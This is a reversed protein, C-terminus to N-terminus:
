RARDPCATRKHGEMGCLGCKPLARTRQQIPPEIGNQQPLPPGQNAHELLELLELAEPATLGGEHAIQRRSITQKRKQKQNAARLDSVEKKLLAASQMTIQCAKLVQNIATNLPSPPSKSRQKLLAKISSAQKQLQIYNSPTKPEWESGRSSPPTPTRLQINLKSIVRDPDYPVLGTASFSNKITESKFTESRASPYADLFDFKDIHNVGARMKTEVLRGYGRKLVAFCGVDLPQLLHSSHPPMCIPIVNNQSCIEDFKPTLHSGHGDLVLLRYKGKTRSSTSPIFVKQLWNLGIEHSTWGNDSKQFLWDKPSSDFWGKIFSKAKFIICPPLAWGSASICEISTVWERNGPQLLSARGYYEARTVVKATAILGMAFGTEDFNYIDDPDIGNELITKQILNFWEQIIKPDECKARENNYRRSYRTSLGPHRKVFNYVWKEGVTQVQTSGRAALLIDAMEQVTTPRPPAGRIDMSIIWKQLSEEEIQTLKHNNARTESRNTTGQLRRRLTTRPINFQTAAQSITPIEQKKIAQIALLIRGEQEALKQRNQSRIPPM